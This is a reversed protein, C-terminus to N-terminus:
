EIMGMRHAVRAAAWADALASHQGRQRIELVKCADQLKPWKWQGDPFQVNHGMEGLHKAAHLMICPGWQRKLNWPEAELFPRDFAVNFSTIPLSPWKGLWARFAEAVEETPQARRLSDLNINNVDLAYQARGGEFYKEGPWCRREFGALMDATASIIVAGIEIIADDRGRQAGLGTTECDIVILM